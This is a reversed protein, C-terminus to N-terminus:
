GKRNRRFFGKKEKYHRKIPVGSEDSLFVNARGQEDLFPEENLEDDPRWRGYESFQDGMVMTTEPTSDAITDMTQDLEVFAAFLILLDTRSYIEESCRVLYSGLGFRKYVAVQTDNKLLSHVGHSHLIVRYIQQEFYFDFLAHLKRKMRPRKSYGCRIGDKYFIFPRDVFFLVIPIVWCLIGMLLIREEVAIKFLTLFLICAIWFACWLFIGQEMSYQLKGQKYLEYKGRGGRLTRVGVLEWDPNNEIQFVCKKLDKKVLRIIQKM